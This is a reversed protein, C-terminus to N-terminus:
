HIIGLAFSNITTKTIASPNVYKVTSNSTSTGVSDGTNSVLSRMLIIIPNMKSFFACEM